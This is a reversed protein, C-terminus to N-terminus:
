TSVPAVSRVHRRALEVLEAFDPRRATGRIQMDEIAMAARQETETVHPIARYPEEPSRSMWPRVYADRLYSLPPVGIAEWCAKAADQLAHGGLRSRGPRRMCVGLRQCASEVVTVPDDEGDELELHKRLLQAMEPVSPQPALRRLKVVAPRVWEGEISDDTLLPATPTSALAALADLALSTLVPVGSRLWQLVRALPLASPATLGVHLRRMALPALIGKAAPHSSLCDRQLLHRVFDTATVLSSVSAQAFAAVDQLAVRDLIHCIVNGDLQFLQAFAASENGSEMRACRRRRLTYSGAGALRAAIAADRSTDASTSAEWARMNAAVVADSEDQAKLSLRHKSAEAEDDELLRNIAAQNAAAEEAASPRRFDHRATNCVACAIAAADNVFTCASCSFTSAVFALDAM